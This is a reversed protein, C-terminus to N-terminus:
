ECLILAQLDFPIGKIKNLLNPAFIGNPNVRKRNKIFRSIVLQMEEVQKDGCLYLTDDTQSFGLEKWISLMYFLLDQNDSATFSNALEIKGDNVSLILMRENHIYSLMYRKEEFPARSIYGMLISPPTFYSVDGVKQLLNHVEKEVPFIITSSQAPLRNAIIETGEGSKPFCCRYYATYEQKEDHEAPLITFEGTEIIAKIGTIEGNGTFTCEEIARALNAALSISDDAQYQFYEVSEPDSPIYSCFCFGDTSIRISLTRNSIPNKVM